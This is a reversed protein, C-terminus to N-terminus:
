KDPPPPFELYWEPQVGYVAVWATRGDQAVQKWHVLGALTLKIEEEMTRMEARLRANEESIVKRVQDIDDILSSRNSRVIGYAVGAATLVTVAIGVLANVLDISM